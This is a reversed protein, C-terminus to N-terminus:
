AGAEALAVLTPWLTDEAHALPGRNLKLYRSRKTEGDYDMLELVLSKRYVTTGSKEVTAMVRFGVEFPTKNYPLQSDGFVVTMFTARKTKAKSVEAVDLRVLVQKMVQNDNMLAVPDYYYLELEVPPDIKWKNAQGPREVAGTDAQQHLSLRLNHLPPLM